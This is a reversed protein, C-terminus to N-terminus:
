AAICRHPRHGRRIWGAMANAAWRPLDKCRSGSLGGEPLWRGHHQDVHCNGPLACEGRPVAAAHDYRLSFRREVHLMNGIQIYCLRRPLLLLVLRSRHHVHKIASCDGQGCCRRFRFWGRRRLGAVSNSDAADEHQDPPRSSDARFHDSENVPSRLRVSCNGSVILCDQRRCQAHRRARAVWTMGPAVVAEWVRSVLFRIVSLLLCSLCPVGPSRPGRRTRM